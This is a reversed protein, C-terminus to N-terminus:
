PSFTWTQGANSADCPELFLKVRKQHPRATVCQGSAVEELRKDERHRFRPVGSDCAGVVLPPEGSYERPGIRVCGGEGGAIRSAGSTDEAFTWRQNTRGHCRFLQLGHGGHAPSDMCEDDKGVPHVLLNASRVM